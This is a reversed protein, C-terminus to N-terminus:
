TSTPILRLTLAIATTRKSKRTRGASWIERSLDQSIGRVHHIIRGPQMERATLAPASIACACLVGMRKCLSRHFTRTHFALLLRPRWIYLYHRIWKIDNQAEERFIFRSVGVLDRTM